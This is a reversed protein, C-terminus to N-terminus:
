DVFRFGAIVSDLDVVNAATTHIRVIVPRGDHIAVIYVVEQAGRAPPEYAQIRTVVSPEGGLVDDVSVAMPDGIGPEGDPGPQVVASLEELTTAKVKRCLEWPGAPRDCTTITGDASGIRITMRQKAGHEIVTPNEGVTWANSLAVIVHGDATMIEQDVPAVDPDIFVFRELLIEFVDPAVTWDGEDFRIAVPRRDHIAVAYSPGGDVWILRAADGDLEIPVAAGLVHDQRIVREVDDLSRLDRTVGCAPDCWGLRGDPTGISVLLRGEAFDYVGSLPVGDVQPQSYAVWLGPIDLSFPGVVVPWLDGDSYVPASPLAVSALVHGFLNEDFTEAPQAWSIAAVNRDRIGVVQVRHWRRGAEDVGVTDVRVPDVLEPLYGDALPIWESSGVAAGVAARLAEREAEASYPITTAVKVTQCEPLCVGTQYPSEHGVAVRGEPDQGAFVKYDCCPTEIETWREPISLTASWDPVSIRRLQTTSTQPNPNPPTPQDPLRQGLGVILGIGALTLLALITAILLVRARPTTRSWRRAGAIWTRHQRTTAVMGLAAEVALAPAREGGDKFWATLVGDLDADSIM